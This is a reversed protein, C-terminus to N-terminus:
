NSNYGFQRTCLVTKWHTERALVSEGTAQLDSVELISYQFHQAHDTGYTRLVHALEKNGGDGSDAYGAWRGWIGAGGCASGVYQRGNSTDVIVYVGSVNSLAVKWTPIEHAVIVRLMRHSLLVHNYGTFDDVSLREPRIEVVVFRDIYGPGNLYSARFPKRYAVVVRGVLDEFGSLETTDYQYCGDPRNRVGLVEFVGGFLWRESDMQILSVIYKRSFNRRSQSEQWEKFKGEFFAELPSSSGAMVACHIKFDASRFGSITLLDALKLM